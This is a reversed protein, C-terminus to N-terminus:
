ERKSMREEGYSTEPLFFIKALTERKYETKHCERGRRITASTEPLFVKAITISVFIVKALTVRACYQSINNVRYWFAIRVFRDSCLHKTRYSSSKPDKQITSSASNTLLRWRALPRGLFYSGWVGGGMVAPPITNLPSGGRTEWYAFINKENHRPSRIKWCDVVLNNIRTYTSSFLIKKDSPKLM